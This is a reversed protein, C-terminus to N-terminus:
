SSVLMVSFERGRVMKTGNMQIGYIESLTNQREM